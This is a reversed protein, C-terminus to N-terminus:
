SESLWLFAKVLGYNLIIGQGKDPDIYPLATHCVSRGQKHFQQQLYQGHGKYSSM